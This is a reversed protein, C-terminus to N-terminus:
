QWVIDEPVRGLRDFFTTREMVELTVRTAEVAIDVVEGERGGLGRTLSASLIRRQLWDKQYNECNDFLVSSHRVSRECGGRACDFPRQYCDAKRFTGFDV